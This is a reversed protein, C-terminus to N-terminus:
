GSSSKLWSRNDLKTNNFCKLRPRPKMLTGIWLSKNENDKILENIYQTMQESAADNKAIFQDHSQLVWAVEQFNGHHMKMEEVLSSVTTSVSQNFHAQREVHGAIEAIAKELEGFRDVVSVIANEHLAIKTAMERITKEMEENEKQLTSVKEALLMVRETQIEDPPVEEVNHAEQEPSPNDDRREQEQQPQHPEAFWFDRDGVLLESRWKSKRGGGM